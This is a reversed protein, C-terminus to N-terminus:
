PESVILVPLFCLSGLVMAISSKLNAKDQELQASCRTTFLQKM